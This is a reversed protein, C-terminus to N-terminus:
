GGGAPKVAKRNALLVVVVIGALLVATGMLSGEPGYSGGSLLHPGKVQLDVLVGGEPPYGTVDLGFFNAQAWNWATHWGCVGWIGGEYLCYLALFVAFLTINVTALINTFGHFASFVVSSTLIGIWPKYRAGVVPLYWGRLLVEEGAGQVLFVLLLLLVAGVAPLGSPLPGGAELQVCGAAAMLGVACAVMGFGVILGKFYRRLPGDGTFGVTRFPRKEYLAVWVWLFVIMLAFPVTYEFVVQPGSSAQEVDGFLLREAISAV